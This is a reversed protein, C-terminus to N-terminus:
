VQALKPGIIERTLLAKLPSDARVTASTLFAVLGLATISIRM